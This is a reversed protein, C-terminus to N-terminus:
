SRPQLIPDLWGFLRAHFLTRAGSECHAAAGEAETFTVFEHPCTLAAVLDSASASIDDGEANCVWTPCTIHEARGVLSYPKMAQVYALPSDVHHVQMGRRLAWGATPKKALSGLMERVASVELKNGAEYGKRLPGPLRGLFGAYMDLTGCDAVCAALRHEASAARPALYAGLSLGVLALRAPDVDDRTLAYDVVPTIVSEWDPRMPLGQDVLVTGQGPGDFMLVNYGRALAAAANFFYQEEMVSDYGGITIVTARPTADADVRLFYGPLTTGEFPIEVIEPPQVMLAAGRRFADRCRHLSEGLRPDVPLGMLMLGATRYYNSARLYALKASEHDGAQESAAGLKAVRDALSTWAEFWSDLDTGKITRAATLVEGVDAGGYPAAGLLRLVQGDLLDDKLVVRADTM